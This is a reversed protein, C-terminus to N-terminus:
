GEEEFKERNLLSKLDAENLEGWNGLLEEDGPLAKEGLRKRMLADEKKKILLIEKWREFEDDAAKLKDSREKTWWDSTRWKGTKDLYGLAQTGGLYLEWDKYNM